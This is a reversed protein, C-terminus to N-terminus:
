LLEKLIPFMALANVCFHFLISYRLGFSIRMYGNIFGMFIQPATLLFSFLIILSIDGIFNTTHMLGFLLASAYYFLRSHNSIFLQTKKPKVYKYIALISLVIVALAIALVIQEQYIKVAILMSLVVSFVIVNRTSFYLLGRFFVEEYIPALVVGIIVVECSPTIEHQHIGTFNSVIAALIGIGFSFLFYLCFLRIFIRWEIKRTNNIQPNKIFTFLEKM